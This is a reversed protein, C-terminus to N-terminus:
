RQFKVADEFSYRGSLRKVEDECLKRLAGLQGEDFQNSAAVVHMMMAVEVGLKFLIRSLRTEFDAMRGDMADDLLPMLTSGNKNSELYSIYFRISKIIFENRNKCNALEMDAQINDLLAQEVHIGTYTKSSM